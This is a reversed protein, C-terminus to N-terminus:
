KKAKSSGVVDWPSAKAPKVSKILKGVFQRSVGYKEGLKQHTNGPILSESYLRQLGHLDWNNPAKTTGAAVAGAKPSPNSIPPTDPLAISPARIWAPLEAGSLRCLERAAELLQAETTPRDRQADAIAQEITISLSGDDIDDILHEDHTEPHKGVLALLRSAQLEIATSAPSYQTGSPSFAVAQLASRRSHLAAADRMARVKPLQELALDRLTLVDNKNLM